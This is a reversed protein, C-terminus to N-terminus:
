AILNLISKSVIFCNYINSHIRQKVQIDMMQDNKKETFGVRNLLPNIIKQMYRKFEGYAPSRRLMKSLYDLGNLAASWPTYETEKTLYKTVGLAVDYSLLGSRALNLADNL